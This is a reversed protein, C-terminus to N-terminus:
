GRWGLHFLDWGSLGGGAWSRHVLRDIIRHEGTGDANAVVWVGCASYAVPTGNPALSPACGADCGHQLRGLRLGQDPGLRGARGDLGRLRLIQTGNNISLQYLIRDGNPSWATEDYSQKGELVLHLDSGDAGMVQLRDRGEDYDYDRVMIQTGDPSYDIDTVDDFSDALLSRDGGDVAVEFISDGDAFAVQAGDPSWALATLAGEATALSTRRGDSPNIVFLEDTAGDVRAIAVRAGVPSWAWLEKIQIDSEPAGPPPADCPTTM